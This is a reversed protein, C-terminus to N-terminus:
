FYKEFSIEYFNQIYKKFSTEYFNRIYLFGLNNPDQVIPLFYHLNKNENKKTTGQFPKIFIKIGNTLYWSTNQFCFTHKKKSLM